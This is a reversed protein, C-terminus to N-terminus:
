DSTKDFLFRGLWDIDFRDPEIHVWYGLALALTAPSLGTIDILGNENITADVMKNRNLDEVIEYAINYLRENNEHVTAM